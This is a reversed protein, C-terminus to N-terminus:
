RFFLLYGLLCIMLSISTIGYGMFNYIFELINDSVSLRLSFAISGCIFIFPLLELINIFKKIVDENLTNPMCCVRLLMYKDVWYTTTLGCLSFVLSLPAVPAYWASLFLTRGIFSYSDAIDLMNLQYIQNTEHQTYVIDEKPTREIQYRLFIKYWQFVDFIRGIPTAFANALMIMHIDRILLETKEVKDFKGHVIYPM